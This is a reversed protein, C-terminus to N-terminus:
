KETTIPTSCERLYVFKYKKRWQEARYKASKYTTCVTWDAQDVVQRLSDGDTPFDRLIQGTIIYQTKKM